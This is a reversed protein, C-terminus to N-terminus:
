EFLRALKQLRGTVAPLTVNRAKVEQYLRKAGAPDSSALIRAYDLQIAAKRPDHLYPGNADMWDKMSSSSGAMAQKLSAELAAPLQPLDDDPNPPTLAAAQRPRDIANAQSKQYVHVIQSMGWIAAAILLIAMLAKM